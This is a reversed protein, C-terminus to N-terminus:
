AAWIRWLINEGFLVGNRVGEHSNCHAVIISRRDASKAIACPDVGVNNERYSEPWWVSRYRIEGSSYFSLLNTVRDLSTLM